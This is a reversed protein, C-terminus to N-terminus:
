EDDLSVIILESFIASNMRSAPFVTLFRTHNPKLRSYMTLSLVSQQEGVALQSAMMLPDICVLPPLIDLPSSKQSGPVEVDPKHCHTWFCFSNQTRLFCGQASLFARNSRGM